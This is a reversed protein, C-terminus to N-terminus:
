LRGLLTIEELQDIELYFQSSSLSWLNMELGKLRPLSGIAEILTLFHNMECKQLKLVKLQQLLKLVVSFDSNM